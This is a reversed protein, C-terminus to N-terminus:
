EGTIKYWISEMSSATILNNRFTYWEATKQEPQPICQLVAIKEAMIFIENETMNKIATEPQVWSRRPMDCIDLFVEATEETFQKVEEFLVEEEKEDMDDNITSSYLVDVYLVETTHMIMGMYFKPSSLSILNQKVYEDMIDYATTTLETYDEETIIEDDSDDDSESDDDLTSNESDSYTEITIEDISEIRILPISDYSSITSNSDTEPFFESDTNEM